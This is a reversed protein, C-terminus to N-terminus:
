SGNLNLLFLCGQLKTLKVTTVSSNGLRKSLARLRVVTASSEFCRHMQPHGLNVHLHRLSAHLKQENEQELKEIARSALCEVHMDDEHVALCVGSPLETMTRLVAKVFAPTYKAAHKSVSGVGPWHGAVPQHTQHCKHEPGPCARSLCRM